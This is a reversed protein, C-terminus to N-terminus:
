IEFTKVDNLSNESNDSFVYTKMSPDKEGEESHYIIYTKTSKEKEKLVYTKKTISQYVVRRVAKKPKDIVKLKWKNFVSDEADSVKVKIKKNGTSTFVRKIMSPADIKKFLGFIWKYKLEDEDADLANVMFQIPIGKHVEMGDLPYSSKIVPKRNKNLVDILIEREKSSINNYARANIVYSGNDEFGPMWMLVSDEVFAGAPLDSLEIADANRAELSVAVSENEYITIPKIESFRVDPNTIYKYVGFLPLFLIILFLVVLASIASIRKVVGWDFPKKEVLPVEKVKKLEKAEELRKAKELAKKEKKRKASRAWKKLPLLTLLAFLIIFLILAGCIGYRVYGWWAYDEVPKEEVDLVEIVIDRKIYVEGDSVTITVDHEGSDNYNTYYADSEMWGSFYYELWDGDPDSSDKPIIVAEGENVSLDCVDGFIPARNTNKVIIRAQKEVTKNNSEAIFGVIFEKEKKCFRDCLGVRDLVREFLNKKVVDFDPRWRLANSSFNAGKPTNNVIIDVRDFDPDHAYVGVIVEENESVFTDNIDNIVPAHDKKSVIIKLSGYDELEGDTITVNILYEGADGEETKWEKDYGVPESIDYYVDDGDPDYYDLEVNVTETEEVSIDELENLVPARNYNQVMVLWEKSIERDGDSVVVRVKYKGSSEYGTSFVFGDEPSVKQGNIDWSYILKDKEPDEANVSFSIEETEKIVLNLEQPNFKRIIPAKNTVEIVLVIDQSVSIKGDSVEVVVNYIGADGEKTQWEGKEDLPASYKYFLKDNDKDEAIINIKVLDGEEVIMVQPDHKVAEVNKEVGKEKVIVTVHEIASLEGDSVTVSINYIGADGKKTQWEGNEDLPSSYTFVLNDNDPDEANARVRVIEGEEVEISSVLAIQLLICLFLVLVSKKDM